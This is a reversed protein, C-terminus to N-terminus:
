PNPDGPGKLLRLAKQTDEHVQSRVQKTYRRLVYSPHFTPMVPIGKYAHWTGRLMHMPKQVHLLACTAPHGLTIIVKPRISDIQKELFPFCAGIEEERPNRNGPPRCKVINCIYVSSRPIKMGMEIIRTLMQGARGVFPRGTRDEDGGPGEGIFVIEANPNGEGFVIEKRIRSLPCRKCDGLELRVEDLSEPETKTQRGATKDGPPEAIDLSPAKAKVLSIEQVHSDMLYFLYNKISKLVDEPEM